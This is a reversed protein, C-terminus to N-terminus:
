KILKNKRIDFIRNKIDYFSKKKYWSISFFFLNRIDFVWIKKKLDLTRIRRDFFIKKIVSFDKNSTLFKRFNIKKFDIILLWQYLFRNKLLDIVAGCM